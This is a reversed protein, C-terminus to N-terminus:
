GAAASAGPDSGRRLRERLEITSEAPDDLDLAELAQVHSRYVAEAAEHDGNAHYARMLAETLGSHAPSAVLGQGAAWIASESDGLDLYLGALHEAAETVQFEWTSIWNDLDVWVYSARDSSRYTFVPGTVLALAGRLTEAAQEDPQAAAYDVRRKFLDLDTRVGPGVRYRGDGAVPLHEAGIAARCESVTNALRKRRAGIPASWVADEIREAAVPGNLAVYTLVATQKPALPRTGGVVEIDGLVRVLVDYDPDQYPEGTDCFGPTAEREDPAEDDTLLTLQDPIREADALLAVVQAPAQPPVRQATCTFGLSPLRLEDGELEVRTGPLTDDAVVVTVTTDGEAVLTCLREFSEAAPREAVVVVHPALGDRHPARARAAFTTPWRNAALLDRGQNAWALLDGSVEDWSSAVHVRDLRDLTASDLDGVVTIAAGSALTSQSLELVLSRLFGTAEPEPGTVTVLGEAELDLYTHGDPEPRGLSVLAPTCPAGAEAAADGDHHVWITGSAEAQWPGDDPVLPESLLVEIREASVQALRPRAQTRPKAALQDALSRLATDLRRRHDDDADRAIEARVDDLETPPQPPPTHPPLQRVRRARRRHLGFAAGTAIGTGAVGLLGVIAAVPVDHAAGSDAPREPAAHPPSAAEETGGRPTPAAATTDPTDTDDRGPEPDTTADGPPGPREDGQGGRDEDGGDGPTPPPPADEGARRVDPFPPVPPLHFTQGPHILDPNAPDVLRNRNDNILHRWYPDTEQDTPPRDWADALTDEALKWLHDGAEIQTELSAVIEGVDGTPPVTGPTGDAVEAPLVLRWGVEVVDSDPDVPRGDPMTRDANLDRIERWRRGDGLFREAIGWYTDHEAVVYAAEADVGPAAAAETDYSGAAPTETTPHSAQRSTETGDDYPVSVGSPSPPRDIAAALTPTPPTLAAVTLAAAVLRSALRQAGPLVLPSRAAARRSGVAAVERAVAVAIQAWALWGVVALAKVVVTPDIGSRAAQEVEAFSPVTTPFPWGAVLALAAPWGAVLAVLALNAVGARVLVLLRRGM